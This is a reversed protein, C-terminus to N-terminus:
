AKLINKIQRKHHFLHARQFKLMQVVTLMGAFPHKYIAKRRYTESYNKLFEEFEKDINIFANKLEEYNLTVNPNSVAKPAKFKTPLYLITQMLIFNRYNKWNCNELEEIGLYKKKIYRLTGSEAEYLHTLVQMVNWSSEFRSKGLATSSFKDLILFLEKKRNTSKRLSTIITNNM